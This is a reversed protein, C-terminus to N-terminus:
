SSEDFDLVKHKYQLAVLIAKAPRLAGLCGGLIAPVWIVAHVWYPPQYALEIWIALAVIVAGVILVVFVAPGDGADHKRLEFGCAGCQDAVQL